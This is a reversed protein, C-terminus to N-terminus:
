GGILYSSQFLVQFPGLLGCDSGRTPSGPRNGDDSVSLFLGSFKVKWHQYGPAEIAPSEETNNPGDVAQGFPATSM